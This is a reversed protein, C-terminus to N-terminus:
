APTLGVVIWPDGLRGSRGIAAVPYSTEAMNPYDRPM